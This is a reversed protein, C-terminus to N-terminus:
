KKLWQIIKKNIKIIGENQMKSLERSMASRDTCLYDALENRNYPVTFTYSGSQEIIDIFYAELRSRITKHTIYSMKQNLFINKEAIIRLLNSILQRHFSCASKCTHIISNVEIFLVECKESAIVTVPIEKMRMCAFTEGFMDGAKFSGVIMSDGLINEKTVQTEGSILIGVSPASEGALFIFEGKHYLKTHSHLCKLVTYIDAEAIESFLKNNKLIEIM